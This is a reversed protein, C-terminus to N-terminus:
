YRRSFPLYRYHSRYNIKYSSKNLTISKVHELIM